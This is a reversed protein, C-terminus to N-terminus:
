GRSHDHPNPHAPYYAYGIGSDVWNIRGVNEGNSDVVNVEFSVEILRGVAVLEDHTLFNQDNIILTM